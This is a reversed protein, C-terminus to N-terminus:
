RGGWSSRVLMRPVRDSVGCVIEYGITGLADAWDEVTIREDGQAGILVVEDGIDVDDEDCDVTLQDMTVVGAIPRRRGGILVHGGSTGFARRVGDAYGIPVTAVTAAREFRYRLGYSIREGAAVRKVYSVRSKLSMVPHLDGCRDAIEPGPAIGYLAIGARVVHRRAAPHALAGASNAVHVTGPDIGVAALSRLVDDFRALQAATFEQQPQDAVALHTFVGALRLTPRRALVETALRIAQHPEAGVRHMGTDVKVHVGYDTRGASRVAATVGDLMARDYVTPTLDAAVMSSLAAPPQQSLVLIPADIGASRLEVGEHVLAVCLGTVGAQLAARAVTMAGHGYGNAKVVAWVEAPRVVDRLVRVNHEVADLDIEAWAWRATRPDPPGTVDM